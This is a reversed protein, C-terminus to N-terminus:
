FRQSAVNNTYFAFTYNPWLTSIVTTVNKSSEIPVEGQILKKGAGVVKLYYDSPLGEYGIFKSKQGVPVNNVCKFIATGEDMEDFMAVYVMSAGAQKADLFQSWLFQGHLRPILDFERGYMNYWSFGPFVVPMYDVNQQRCWALDPGLINKAYTTAENPNTYRGVTWPSIIDAMKLMQLLAPDSIADRNMERWHTPVGLM